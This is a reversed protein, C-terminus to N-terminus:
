GQAIVAFVLWVGYVIFGAGAALFVWDIVKLMQRSPHLDLLISRVGILSHSVVFILFAIEMIPILPNQYYAVVDAWTLLGGEAAFHNVVLHIGLIIVILLGSVLKYLWLWANEGSKPGVNHVTSTIM